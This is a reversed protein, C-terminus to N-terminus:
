KIDFLIEILTKKDASDRIIIMYKSLNLILVAILCSLIACSQRRKYTQRYILNRSGKQSESITHLTCEKGICIARVTELSSSCLKWIYLNIVLACINDRYFKLEKSKAKLM